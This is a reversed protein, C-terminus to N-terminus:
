GCDPPHLVPHTSQPTFIQLSGSNRRHLTAVAGLKSMSVTLAGNGGREVPEATVSDPYTCFIM